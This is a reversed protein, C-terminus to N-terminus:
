KGYTEGSPKGTFTIKWKKVGAVSTEEMKSRELGSVKPGLQSTLKDAMQPNNVLFSLSVTADDNTKYPSAPAAGVQFVTMDVVTDKPVHSSLEKLYELPSRPNPAFLQSLERKRGLERNISKRLEGTNALYSRVASGALQGFFGRLNKELQADTDTLRARYVRSEVFLSLVLCFTIAGVAQLPRRLATLNLERGRKSKAFEGARLNVMQNRDTGVLTLALGTALAFAANTQESYEVGSGGLGTMSRLLHVPHDFLEEFTRLMGPLLCSGGSLYLAQIRHQTLSKATLDLQRIEAVLDTMTGLLAESFEIQETTAQSRQSPALVFGQKLKVEAAREATLGYKHQIVEEFRSGGWDLERALLPKGEFHVYLLTRQHGIHVLLLPGATASATRNLLARLGWAETTVTDPDIGWEQWQSLGAVLHKRMTAAVHLSTGSKSQELISFDSALQDSPFPLEDELEFAVGARVAKKDRTPLQLNRFTTQSTKLAGVIRDPVKPLAHVLRSLATQVSEGAQIVEEHHDHIEFRGFASDIEVAKISSSGVDIGLIRM